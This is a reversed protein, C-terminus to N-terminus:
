APNAHHTYDLDGSRSCDVLKVHTPKLTPFPAWPNPMPLENNPGMKISAVLLQGNGVRPADPASELSLAGRPWVRDAAETLLANLTPDQIAYAASRLAHALGADPLVAIRQQETNTLTSLETNM